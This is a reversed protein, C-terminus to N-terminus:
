YGFPASLCGRLPGLLVLGAFSAGRAGRPFPLPSPAQTPDPTPVQSCTLTLEFKGEGGEAAGEVVLWYDKGVEHVDFYLLSCFFGPVESVLLTSGPASPRGDYLRLM